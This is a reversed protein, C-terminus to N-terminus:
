LGQARLSRAGVVQRHGSGQCDEETNEGGKRCRQRRRGGHSRDGAQQIPRVTEIRRRQLRPIEAQITSSTAREQIRGEQHGEEAEKQRRRREGMQGRRQHLHNRAEQGRLSHPAGHRGPGELEQCYHQFYGGRLRAQGCKGLGGLRAQHLGRLRQHEDRTQVNREPLREPQIGQQQFQQLDRQSHGRKERPQPHHRETGSHNAENGQQGPHAGSDTRVYRRTACLDNSRV